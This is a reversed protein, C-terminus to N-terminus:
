RQAPVLGFKKRIRDNEAKTQQIIGKSVHFGPDADTNGVNSRRDMELFEAFQAALLSTRNLMSGHGHM